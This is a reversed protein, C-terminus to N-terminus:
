LTSAFEGFSSVDCICAGVALVWAIASARRVREVVECEALPPLPRSESAWAGGTRTSGTSRSTSSRLLLAPPPKLPRVAGGGSLLLAAPVLRM